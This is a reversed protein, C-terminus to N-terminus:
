PVPPRAPGAGRAPFASALLGRLWAVGRVRGAALDALRAALLRLGSALEGGARLARLVRCVRAQGAIVPPQPTGVGDGAMLDGHYGAAARSVARGPAHLLGQGANLLLGILLVGGCGPLEVGLDAEGPATADRLLALVGAWVRAANAEACGDRGASAAPRAAMAM